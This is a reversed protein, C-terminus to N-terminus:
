KMHSSMEVLKPSLRKELLLDLGADSNPSSRGYQGKALLKNTPDKRETEPSCTWGVSATQDLLSAAPYLRPQLEAQFCDM